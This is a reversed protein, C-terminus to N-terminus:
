DTQREQRWASLFNEGVVGAVGKEMLMLVSGM